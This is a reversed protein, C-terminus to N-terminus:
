VPFYIRCEEVEGNKIVSAKFSADQNYHWFVSKFSYLISIVFFLSRKNLNSFSTHPFVSIFSCPFFPSMTLLHLRVSLLRIKNQSLCARMCTCVGACSLFEYNFFIQVYIWSMVMSAVSVHSSNNVGPVPRWLPFSIRLYWSVDEADLTMILPLAQFLKDSLADVCTTSPGM